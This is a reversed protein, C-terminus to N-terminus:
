RLRGGGRALGHAPTAARPAAHMVPAPARPTAPMPASHYASPPSRFEHVPMM